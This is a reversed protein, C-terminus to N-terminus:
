SMPTLPYASLNWHEQGGSDLNVEIRIIYNQGLNYFVFEAGEDHALTLQGVLWETQAENQALRPIVIGGDTFAAYIEAVTADMSFNVGDDSEITVYMAQAGGGGGLASAKIKKLGESTSIPLVDNTGASQAETLGAFVNVINTATIKKVGSSTSIPLVDTAAASSAETLENITKTNTAM